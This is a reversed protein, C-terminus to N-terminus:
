EAAGREAVIVMFPSQPGERKVNRINYTLGRWSIRDIESVDSRTRITFWTEGAANIRGQDLSERGSKAAAGAWVTILDSWSRTIGGAGDAVEAYRQIVIRQDLKGIVLGGM